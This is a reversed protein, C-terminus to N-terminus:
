FFSWDDDPQDSWDDDGFEEAKPKADPAKPKKTAAGENENDGDAVKTSVAKTYAGEVIKWPGKYEPDNKMTDVLFLLKYAERTKVKLYFDNLGARTSFMFIMSCVYLAASGLIFWTTQSEEGFGKWGTGIFIDLVYLGPELWGIAIWTWYFGDYAAMEASVRPEYAASIPSYHVM